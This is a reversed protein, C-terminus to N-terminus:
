AECVISSVYMQRMGTRQCLLNLIDEEVYLFRGLISAMMNM